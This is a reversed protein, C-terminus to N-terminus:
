VAGKMINSSLAKWQRWDDRLRKQLEKFQTSFQEKSNFEELCREKLQALESISTLVKESLENVQRELEHRKDNWYRAINDILFVKEEIVMRKKITMKDTQKLATTLGLKSLTWILWKTPDFHYWRIGNRYDNAFTHHYNHYGEGFTLLAIVFNDVATQEQSFQKSGWTHALSNIFWTCHHLFFMRLLTAILFAGLFDGFCLGVTLFALFNTGVMLWPYYRDQFVVMKNSMLDSVVKSEIPPHKELMWLFHAYWFGKKICYPDKDTDVFAHHRRHDYSWRLVSSQCAMTGFFLLAFEVIPHAKFARHSYYRHYGATVSLGTLWLLIFASVMTGTHLQGYYLYIPLSIALLTHYTVLFIPSTGWHYKIKASEM